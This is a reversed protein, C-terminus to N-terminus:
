KTMFPLHVLRRGTMEFFCDKTARVDALADHAKDFEKDFLFHHLEQLKPWKFGYKGPIKCVHTGTEMTCFSPPVNYPLKTRLYEGRIVNKDFAYNHAVILFSENLSKALHLLAQIIPKGYHTAFETTIGHVNSAEKPIIFGEPKIIYNNEEIVKGSEDCLIFALQVLRPWNNLDLEPAKKYDYPLGTTETDFFLINM